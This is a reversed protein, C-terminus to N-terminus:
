SKGPRMTNKEPRLFFLLPNKKSGYGMHQWISYQYGKLSIRYEPEFGMCHLMGKKELVRLIFSQFLGHFFDQPKNASQIEM